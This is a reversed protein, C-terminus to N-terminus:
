KVRNRKRRMKRAMKGESSIDDASGKLDKEQVMGDSEKEKEDLRKKSFRYALLFCVAFMFIWYSETIGYNMAQHIGIVLMGVSLSLLIINRLM